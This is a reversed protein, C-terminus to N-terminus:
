RAVSTDVPRNTAILTSRWCIARVRVPEAADGDVYFQLTAVSGAPLPDPTALFLGGLSVNEAIGELYERAHRDIPTSSCVVRVGMAVRRYQRLDGM